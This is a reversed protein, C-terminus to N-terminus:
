KSDNALTRLLYQVQDCSTIADLNLILTQLGPALLNEDLESEARWELNEKEAVYLLQGNLQM